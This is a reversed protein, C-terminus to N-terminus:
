RFPSAHQLFSFRTEEGFEVEARRSVFSFFKDFLVSHTRVSLVRLGPTEANLVSDAGCDECLLARVCLAQQLILRIQEPAALRRGDGLLDGVFLCRRDESPKLVAQLWCHRCLVMLENVLCDLFDADEHAVLDARSHLLVGDM